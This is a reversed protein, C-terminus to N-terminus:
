ARRYRAVIAAVEDVVRPVAAVVAPSPDDGLELAVAGVSM